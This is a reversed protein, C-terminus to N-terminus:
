MTKRLWLSLLERYVFFGMILGFAMAGIMVVVRIFHSPFLPFSIVILVYWVLVAVVAGIIRALIVQHSKVIIM